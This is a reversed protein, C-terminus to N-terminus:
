VSGKGLVDVWRHGDLAGPEPGLRTVVPHRSTWDDIGIRGYGRTTGWGLRGFGRHLEDLALLLLTRAAAERLPTPGTLRDDADVNARLRDTDVALTSRWTAPPPELVNYLLGHAAGGTWRDIAVHHRVIWDDPLDGGTLADAHDVERARRHLEDWAARPVRADSRLAGVRVAGRLPRRRHENAAAGFLAAVLPLDLQTRHSVRKLRQEADLDFPLRVDTVTRVVREALSRLVGRLATGPIHLAVHDPHETDPAVLPWLDIANKKAGGRERARPALSFVPTTGSWQLDVTDAQHRAPELPESAPPPGFLRRHASADPAHRYRHATVVEITGFGQGAGAGVRIVSGPAIVAELAQRQDDTASLPLLVWGRFSAGGAVVERDYKLGDHAAGTRRDIGVGHRVEVSAETAVLDRVVVVSPQLNRRETPASGFLGPATRDLTRRLVGALGTGLIVPLGAIRATVQDVDDIGRPTDGGIRLEDLNRVVIDYAIVERPIEGAATDPEVTTM